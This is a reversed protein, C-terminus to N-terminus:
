NEGNDSSASRNKPLSSLFGIFLQAREEDSFSRPSKWAPGLKDMTMQYEKCIWATLRRNKELEEDKSTENKFTKAWALYPLIRQGLIVFAEKPSDSAVRFLASGVFQPPYNKERVVKCYLEHLIDSEHLLQGFLYPAENCYSDMYIGERHLLLSLFPILLNIADMCSKSMDNYDRKALAAGTAAILKPCKEVAIHMEREVPLMKDLLLEVGYYDPVVSLNPAEKNNRKPGSGEKEDRNVQTNMIEAISMPYPIRRALGGLIEPHNGCGAEWDRVNDELSQINVARTYMVRTRGPPKNTVKRLVFVRIDDTAGADEGEVGHRLKNIYVAAAEEFKRKPSVSFVSEFEREPSVGFVSTYDLQKIFEGIPYVYLWEHSHSKSTWIWVKNELAQNNLWRMAGALVERNRISLPFSDNKKLGYKIQCVAADNMTRLSASMNDPLKFTAMRDTTPEYPQGLADVLANNDLIDSVSENTLLAKNLSNNFQYTRTSWGSEVLEETDFIFSLSDNKRKPMNFLLLLATSIDQHKRLCQFAYQKLMEYLTMPNRYRDTAEVLLKVPEFDGTLELLKHPEIVMRLKYKRAFREQKRANKPFWLSDNCMSIITEIDKDSLPENGKAAKNLINSDASDKPLAFLADLNMHPYSAQNSGFKYIGALEDGTLTSLSAIGNDNLCIRICPTNPIEDLEFYRIQDSFDIGSAQLAKTISFAENIM